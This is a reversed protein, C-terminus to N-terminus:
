VACFRQSVHRNPDRQHISAIEVHELRQEVLDGGCRERWGVDRMWYSRDQLTLAIGFDPQGFRNGDIWRSPSDLQEVTLQRVVIEHHRRTRRVRIEAM